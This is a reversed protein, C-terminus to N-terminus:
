QIELLFPNLGSGYAASSLAPACTSRYPNPPFTEGEALSANRYELLEKLENDSRRLIAHPYENGLDLALEGVREGISM